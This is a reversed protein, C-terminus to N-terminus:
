RCPWISIANDVSGTALHPNRESFDLCQIFHEHADSITKICRLEKLDWVKVARDDSVSILHKGDPLFYIDRVWNDHGQLTAVTSGSNIEFIKIVKDRGASAAYKTEATSAVADSSSSDDTISASTPNAVAARLAIGRLITHAAKGPVFLVTEIANDHESYTSICTGKQLDWVRATQDMAGSILLTGDPSIDIRRVWKSHGTLTQKCYGTSTEWIKISNDRSCSVLQDGSPTFRVSSITHDHGHLTKTCNFSSTFDWIKITLDNSCSALMTGKPDFAVDRVAGTHGKLTREVRGQEYDWVRITADESASCVLEQFPHFRVSTVNDRHGKLVFKAPPRPLTSGEEGEASAGGRSGNTRESEYQTM